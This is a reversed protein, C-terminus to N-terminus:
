QDAAGWPVPVVDYAVKMLTTGANNNVLALGETTALTPNAGVYIRVSDNHQINVATDAIYSMYNVGSANGRLSITQGAAGAATTMTWWVNNIRIIYGLPPPQVFTTQGTGAFSAVGVWGVGASTPLVEVTSNGLTLRTIPGQLGFVVLNGYFVNGIGGGQVLTSVNNTINRGNVPFTAPQNMGM